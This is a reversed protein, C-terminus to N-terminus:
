RPILMRGHDAWDFKYNQILNLFLSLDLVAPTQFSFLNYTAEWLDPYAQINMVKLASLVDNMSFNMYKPIDFELFYSFFWSYFSLANYNSTFYGKEPNFYKKFISSHNRSDVVKCAITDLSYPFRDQVQIGDNDILIGQKSEVHFLINGITFLDPFCYSLKNSDILVQILWLIFPEWLIIDHDWLLKLHSLDNGIVSPTRYAIFQDDIYYIDSVPNIGKVYNEKDMMFELNQKMRNDLAAFNQENLTKYYYEKDRTITWGQTEKIYETDQFYLEMYDKKAM